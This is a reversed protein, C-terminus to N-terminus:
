EDDDFRRPHRRRPRTASHRITGSVQEAYSGRDRIIEFDLGLRENRIYVINSDKSGHGWYPGSLWELGFTADLDEEIQRDSSDAMVDDAEYYTYTVQEHEHENEKFEDLHIIYPADPSRKALEVKYDWLDMPEDDNGRFVNLNTPTPENVPVSPRTPRERIIEEKEVRVEDIPPKRKRAVDKAHYHERIRHIEDAALKSYKTKLRHDAIYFGAAFGLGIGVTMGFSLFGVDRGTIRRTADAVKEVGVAVEDLGEAAQEALQETAM